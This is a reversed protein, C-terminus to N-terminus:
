KRFVFYAFYNLSTACVHLLNGSTILNERNPTHIVLTGTNEHNMESPNMRAPLTHAKTPKVKNNDSSTSKVIVNRKGVYKFCYLSMELVSFFNVVDVDACKQWLSILQEEGLYKVVFLFILFIDKIENPQLKDYRHLHTSQAVSLGRTHTKTENSKTSDEHTERVITTEQSIISQNESSLTSIDSELSMSSHGNM